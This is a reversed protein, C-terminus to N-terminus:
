LERMDVQLPNLLLTDAHLHLKNSESVDSIQIWAREPLHEFVQLGSSLSVTLKYVGAGLYIDNNQLTIVYRGAALKSVLETETRIISLETNSSMLYTMKFDKLTENAVLQVQVKWKAGVALNSSPKGREDMITVSEVYGKSKEHRIPLPFSFVASEKDSQEGYAQIVKHIDGMQKIKGDELLLGKSCLYRVNSMSHSVYVITKGSRAVERMRDLARKRFEYDGVALIEDMMLIESELYAAVSFALRLYMGSSYRKVPTDIFREVGSFEVINSFQRRIQHHKMGLIAGSLEINEAGTLEPHFGTGIELLSSVTGDLYVYGHSPRTINSLIKLLTSKGAGNKGILGLTEGKTLEFSVKSLAWFHKQQPHTNLARQNQSDLEQAVANKNGTLRHWLYTLDERLTGFGIEGLRYRKGLNEVKIIPKKVRM